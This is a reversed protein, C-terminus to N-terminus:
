AAGQELPRVAPDLLNVVSAPAGHHGCFQRWLAIREDIRRKGEGQAGMREVLSSEDLLVAVGRPSAREPLSLVGYLQEGACRFAVAQEDYRM